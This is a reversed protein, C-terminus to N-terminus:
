STLAYDGTTKNFLEKNETLATVKIRLLLMM